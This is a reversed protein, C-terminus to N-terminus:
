TGSPRRAAVLGEVRRALDVAVPPLFPKLRHQWAPRVRPTAPVSTAVAAPPEAVGLPAVPDPAVGPQQYLTSHVGM